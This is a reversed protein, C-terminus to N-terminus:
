KKIEFDVIMTDGKVHSKEIHTEKKLWAMKNQILYSFKRFAVHHILM